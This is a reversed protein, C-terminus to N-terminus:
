FGSQKNYADADANCKAIEARRLPGKLDPHAVTVLGGCGRGSASGRGGLPDRHTFADARDATAVWISLVVVIGGMIGFRM